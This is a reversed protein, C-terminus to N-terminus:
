LALAVPLLVLAALVPVPLREPPHDLPLSKEPELV